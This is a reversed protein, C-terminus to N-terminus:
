RSALPATVLTPVRVEVGVAPLGTPGGSRGSGTAGIKDASGAATEATRVPMPATNGLTDKEPNSGSGVSPAGDDVVEASDSAVADVDEESVDVDM